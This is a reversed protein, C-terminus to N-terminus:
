NSVAAAALIGAATARAVRAPEASARATATTIAGPVLLFVQEAITEPNDFGAETAAQRFYDEIEATLDALEQRFAQDANRFETATNLFPCGRFDDETLWEGLVDFFTTLKEEPTRTRTEIEARVQDFWRAAPSRLWVHILDEKSKFHAYFTAKAVDARAIVTNIGTARVGNARFLGSAAAIIRDRPDAPQKGFVFRVLKGNDDDAVEVRESIVRGILVGVDDVALPLPDSEPRECRVECFWEGGQRATRIMAPGDKALTQVLESVALLLDDAVNASLGASQAEWRVTRRIDALDYPQSIEIRTREEAEPRDEALALAAAMDQAGFHSPSPSRAPKTSTTPHTRRADSLAENPVIQTNYPCLLWVSRGAFARNLLSEYRTWGRIGVGNGNFQVEGIARVFDVGDRSQQNLADRWAVLAAGPRRYWRAADFFAVADADSGLHQRLLAIRGETTVALAGQSTAVADRLFPVLRAAFEEDSSYFFAEHIL